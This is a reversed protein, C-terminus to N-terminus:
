YNYVITRILDHKFNNRTVVSTFGLKFRISKPIHNILLDALGGLHQIMVEKDTLLQRVTFTEEKFKVEEDLVSNDWMWHYTYAPLLLVENNMTNKLLLKLKDTDLNNCEFTKNKVSYIFALLSMVIYTKVVNKPMTMFLFYMIWYRFDKNILSGSAQTPSM